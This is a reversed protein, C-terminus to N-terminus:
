QFGGEQWRRYHWLNISRRIEQLARSDMNSLLLLTTDPAHEISAITVFGHRRLLNRARPSLDELRDITPWLRRQLRGWAEEALCWLLIPVCMVLGTIGFWATVLMVIVQTDGELLAAPAVILALSVLIAVLSRRIPNIAFLSGVDSYGTTTRLQYRQMVYLDRM